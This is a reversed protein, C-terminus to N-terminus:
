STIIQGNYRLDIEKIAIVAERSSGLMAQAWFAALRRMKEQYEEDGFQVRVSPAGPLPTTYLTMGAPTVRVESILDYVRDDLGSITDLMELLRPEVTRDGPTLTKLFRDDHLVPVDVPNGATVRMASGYRDLYLSPRGRRLLVVVPTREVVRVALTGTPRRRVTASAVWPDELLREVVDAPKVDYLLTDSDIKVRANLNASAVHTNGVVLITKLPVTHRWKWGLWGFGSVAIIICGMLMVLTRRSVSFLNLKEM